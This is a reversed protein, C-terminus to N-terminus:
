RGVLVIYTIHPRTFGLLRVSMKTLYALDLLKYDDLRIRCV